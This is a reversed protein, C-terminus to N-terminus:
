EKNTHKFKSKHKFEEARWSNVTERKLTPSQKFSVVKRERSYRNPTHRFNLLQPQMNKIRMIGVSPIAVRGKSQLVQAISYIYLRHVTAAFNDTVPVGHKQGVAKIMSLVENPIKIRCRLFPEQVLSSIKHAVANSKRLM